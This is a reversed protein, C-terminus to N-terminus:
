GNIGWLLQFWWQVGDLKLGQGPICEPLGGSRHQRDPPSKRQQDPHRTGLGLVPATLIGFVKGKDTKKEKEKGGSEVRSLSLGAVHGITVATGTRCLAASGRACSTKAQRLGAAGEVKPMSARRSRWLEWYRAANVERAPMCFFLCLALRMAALQLGLRALGAKLAEM